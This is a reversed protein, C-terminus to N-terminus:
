LWPTVALSRIGRRRLSIRIDRMLRDSVPAGDPGRLDQCVWFADSGDSMRILEVLVPSHKWKAIEVVGAFARCLFARARIARLLHETVREGRIGTAISGAARRLLLM